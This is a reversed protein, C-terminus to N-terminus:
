GASSWILSLHTPGEAEAQFGHRRYLGAARGNTRAVSLRLARGTERAEDQLAVLIRSGIGQGQRSPLLAIDILHVAQGAFDVYLRGVPERKAEIVLFRAAPYRGTYDLHQAEFQARCFDRRTAEPWNLPALEAERGIRYLRRLFPLDM